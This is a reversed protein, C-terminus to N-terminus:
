VPAPAPEKTEQPFATKEMELVWPEVADYRMLDIEVGKGGKQPHAPKVKLTIYLRHWKRKDFEEIDSPVLSAGDPLTLRQAQPDWQYRRSRAMAILVLIYAGMGIGVAFIIWQSPLDFASLPSAERAAGSATTWRTRLTAIREHPDSVSDGRFDSRPIHTSASAPELRGVLDLQDLWDHLARDAGQLPADEHQQRLRTLTARPDEIPARSTQGAASLAQLYQLELFEAAEVGRRPYYITADIYGWVGFALLAASILSMRLLWKRSVRAILPSPAPDTM